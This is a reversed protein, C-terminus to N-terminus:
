PRSEALWEGDGGAASIWTGVIRSIGGIGPPTWRGTLNLRVSDDSLLYAEGDFSVTGTFEQFSHGPDDAYWDYGVLNGEEDQDLHLLLRDYISNHLVLDYDGNLNPRLRLAVPACTEDVDVVASAPIYGAATAVFTHSGVTLEVTGGAVVGDVTITAGDANTTVTVECTVIPFSDEGRGDGYNQYSGYCGAVFVFGLAACTMLGKMALRRTEASGLRSKM